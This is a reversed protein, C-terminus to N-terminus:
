KLLFADLWRKSQIQECTYPLHSPDRLGYLKNLGKCLIMPNNHRVSQGKGVLLHRFFLSFIHNFFAELSLFIAEPTRGEALDRFKYQIQFILALCLLWQIAFWNIIEWLLSFSRKEINRSIGNSGVLKLCTKRSFPWNGRGSIMDILHKWSLVPFIKPLFGEIFPFIM